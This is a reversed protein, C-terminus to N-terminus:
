EPSNAIELLVDAHCPPCDACHEEWPRGAKHKACLKCWCALDIGRLFERIYRQHMEGSCQRERFLAVAESATLNKKGTLNDPGGVVYNNGFISPRSVCLTNPPLRWGKTRKRQIRMPM